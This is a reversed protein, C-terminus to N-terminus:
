SGEEDLIEGITRDSGGYPHAEQEWGVPLRGRKVQAAHAVFDFEENALIDRSHTVAVSEAEEKTAACVVIETLVDVTWLPMAQGRRTITRAKLQVSGNPESM